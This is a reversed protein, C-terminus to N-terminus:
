FVDLPNWSKKDTEWFVRKLIEYEEFIGCFNESGPGKALVPSLLSTNRFLVKKGKSEFEFWEKGKKPLELHLSEAATVLFLTENSRQNEEKLFKLTKELEVLIERAKPINKSRLANLFSFDRIIFVSQGQEKKFRSWISKVNDYLTAFCNGKLCSKDYYVKNKEFKQSGLYHFLEEKGGKEMKWLTTNSLFSEKGLCTKSTSLSGAGAEVEFIGVKHSSRNLFNWMPKRSFDECSGTINKSGVIQSLFGDSAKPRLGYLNYSWSKGSCHVDEFSTIASQPSSFRIMALHEEELGAIQLWIINKAKGGYTHPTLNLTQVRSCGTFLLLIVILNKTIPKM